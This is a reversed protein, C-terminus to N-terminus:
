DQGEPGHAVAVMDAVLKAGQEPTLGADLLPFLISEEIELHLRLIAALGHLQASLHGRREEYTGADGLGATWLRLADIRELIEVHEGRMTATAMPSGAVDDVAPYLVAEEALAHPVVHRALFEVADTIEPVVEAAPSQIVRIALDDLADLHARLGAHELRLPETVTTTAPPTM